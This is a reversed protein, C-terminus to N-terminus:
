MGRYKWPDGSARRYTYHLVYSSGSRQHTRPWVFQGFSIMRNGTVVPCVPHEFSTMRNGTVVSCIHHGFLTMRNGTVERCIVIHISNLIFGILQCFLTLKSKVVAYYSIKNM